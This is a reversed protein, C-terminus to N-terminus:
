EDAEPKDPLPMWHTVGGIPDIQSEDDTEWYDLPGFGDRADDHAYWGRFIRGDDTLVLVDASRSWAVGDIPKQPILKPLIFEVPLWYRSLTHPIKTAKVRLKRAQYKEPNKKRWERQYANLADKHTKQYQRQYASMAVRQEDTMKARSEKRLGNIKERYQAYYARAYERKQENTM